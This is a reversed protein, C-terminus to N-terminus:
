STAGQAALAQRVEHDTADAHSPCLDVHGTQGDLRARRWGRDGTEKAAGCTVGPGYLFGCTWSARGALPPGPRYEEEGDGASRPQRKAKPAVVDGRGKGAVVPKVPRDARPPRAPAPPRAAPPPTPSPPDIPEVPAADTDPAGPCKRSHLTRGSPHILHGCAECPVKAEHSRLHAARGSASAGVYNCHPCPYEDLGADADTLPRGSDEVPPADEGQDLEPTAPSTGSSEGATSAGDEHGDAMAGGTSVTLAQPDQAAPEAVVETATAPHVPDTVSDATTALLGGAHPTIPDCGAREALDVFRRLEAVPAPLPLHLRVAIM